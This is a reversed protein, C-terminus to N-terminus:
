IENIKGQWQSPVHKPNVVHCTMNKKSKDYVLCEIYDKNLTCRQSMIKHIHGLVSTSSIIYRICSNLTM